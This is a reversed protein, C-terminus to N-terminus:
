SSCSRAPMGSATTALRGWGRERGGPVRRVGLIERQLHPHSEFGRTVSKCDAASGERGTSVQGKGTTKAGARSRGRGRPLTTQLGNADPAGKPALEPIALDLPPLWGLGLEGATRAARKYRYLMLSSRHGTRDTVWGETRGAALALTVFTGRLDHARLLMRGKKPVTLEPRNVGALELGARLRPAFHCREGVVAKPFVRPVQEAKKGRLKRWAELARAVDEGLAWSRPDDTKNHRPSHRREQSRPRAVHPGPSRERSSGRPRAPRLLPAPRAARGRM